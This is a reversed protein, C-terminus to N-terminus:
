KELRKIERQLRKLDGVTPLRDAASEGENISGVDSLAAGVREVFESMTHLTRRMNGTQDEAIDSISRGAAQIKRGAAMVKSGSRSSVFERMESVREENELLRREENIIKRL